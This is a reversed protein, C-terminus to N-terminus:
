GGSGEYLLIAGHDQNLYHSMKLASEAQLLIDNLTANELAFAPVNKELLHPSPYLVEDMGLRLKIDAKKLLSNIALIREQLTQEPFTTLGPMTARLGAFMEDIGHQKKTERERVKTTSSIGSTEPSKGADPMQGTTATAPPGSATANTESSFRLFLASGLLLLILVILIRRTPM